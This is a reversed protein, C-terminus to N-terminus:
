TCHPLLVPRGHGFYLNVSCPGNKKAEAAFGSQTFAGYHAKMTVCDMDKLEQINFRFDSADRAFGQLTSDKSNIYKLSSLVAEDFYEKGPKPEGVVELKKTGSPDTTKTPTNRVYRYLNADGADFGLPTQSTLLGILWPRTRAQGSASRRRGPSCLDAALSSQTTM